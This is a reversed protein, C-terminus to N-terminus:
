GLGLFEAAERVVRDFVTLPHEERLRLGSETRDFLTVNIWSSEFTSWWRIGASDGHEDFLKAAAVQTQARDGTAVVSPRLAEAALVRPDDLDVLRASDSLEIGALTLRRGGRVLWRDRVRGRGVFRALQEVVTSVEVESAYLCGYLLPNDHRGRGQLDRPFWAAGGRESAAAGEM